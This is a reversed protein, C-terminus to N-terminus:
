NKEFLIIKETVSGSLLIDKVSHRGFKSYSLLWKKQLSTFGLVAAGLCFQSVSIVKFLSLLGYKVLWFSLFGFFNFIDLPLFPGFVGLLMTLFDALLNDPLSLFVLSHWKDSESFLELFVISDGFIIALAELEEDKVGATFVKFRFRTVGSRGLVARLSCCKLECGDSDFTDEFWFVVGFLIWLRLPRLLFFEFSERCILRRM